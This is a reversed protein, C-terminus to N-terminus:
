GVTNVPMLKTIYDFQAYGTHGARILSLVRIDKVQLLSQRHNLLCKLISLALLLHSSQENIGTQDFLLRSRSTTEM